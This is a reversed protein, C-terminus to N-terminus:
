EPKTIIKKLNEYQEYIDPLEYENKEIAGRGREIGKIIDKCDGAITKSVCDTAFTAKIESILEKPNIDMLNCMVFGAFICRAARQM